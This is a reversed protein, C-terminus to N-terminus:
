EVAVPTIPQRARVAAHIHHERLGNELMHPPRQYSRQQRLHKAHQAWTSDHDVDDIQPIVQVDHAIALYYAIPEVRM